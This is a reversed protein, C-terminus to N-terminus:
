YENIAETLFQVSRQSRIAAREKNLFAQRLAQKSGPDLDPLYALLEVSEQDASKEPSLAKAGPLGLLSSLRNQEFLSVRWDALLFIVFLVSSAALAWRWAPTLVRRVEAERRAAQIVKGKLEQPASRPSFQELLKEIDQEDKV